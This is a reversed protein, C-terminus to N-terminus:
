VVGGINKIIKIKELYGAPHKLYWERKFAEKRDLFVESYVLKWPRFPKTSKTQGSNHESLRNNLNATCGIYFRKVKKSELIYVFYEM